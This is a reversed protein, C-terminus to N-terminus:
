AEEEYISDYREPKKIITPHDMVYQLANAAGEPGYRYEKVLLEIAEEKTADGHLYAYFITDQPRGLTPGIKVTERVLGM